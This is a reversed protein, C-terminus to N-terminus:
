PCQSRAFASGPVFLESGPTDPSMDLTRSVEELVSQTAWTISNHLRFHLFLDYRRSASFKSSEFGTRASNPRHFSQSSM